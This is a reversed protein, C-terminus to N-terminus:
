ESEDQGIKRLPNVPAEKLCGAARIQGIAYPLLTLNACGAHMYFKFNGHKDIHLRSRLEKGIPVKLDVQRDCALVCLDPVLSGGEFRQKLFEEYIEARFPDHGGLRVATLSTDDMVVFQVTVVNSGLGDFKKFPRNKSSLWKPLNVSQYEANKFFGSGNLSETVGLALLSFPYGFLFYSEGQLDARAAFLDYFFPARGEGRQSLYEATYGRAFAL